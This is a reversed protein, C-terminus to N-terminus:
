ITVNFRECYHPNDGKESGIQNVRKFMAELELFREDGVKDRVSKNPALASRFLFINNAFTYIQGNILNLAHCAFLFDTATHRSNGLAQELENPIQGKSAIYNKMDDTVIVGNRFNNVDIVEHYLAKKEDSSMGRLDVVKHGKWSNYDKFGHVYIRKEGKMDRPDKRWGRIPTIREYDKWAPDLDNAPFILAREQKAIMKKIATTKGTGRGGVLINIQATRPM